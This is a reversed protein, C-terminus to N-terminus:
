PLKFRAFTLPFMEKRNLMATSVTSSPIQFHKAFSELYDVRVVRRSDLGLL